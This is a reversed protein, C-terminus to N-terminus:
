APDGGLGPDFRSEHMVVERGHVLQVQGDEPDARRDVEISLLLRQGGVPRQVREPVGQGCGLVSSQQQLEHSKGVVALFDACFNRGPGFAPAFLLDGSQVEDDALVVEVGVIERRRRQGDDDGRDPARQDELLTEAGGATVVLRDRQHM